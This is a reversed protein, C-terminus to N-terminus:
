TASHASMSGIATGGVATRALVAEHAAVSEAVQRILNGLTEIESALPATTRSKEVAAAAAAEAAEIRRSIEGVKSALEATGRSLDAIQQSVLEQDHIRTSAFNYVVMATLVALAVMVAEISTLGAWLYLIAALSGAILVMCVAVFAAGLRMMGM